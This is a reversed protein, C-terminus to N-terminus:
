HPENEDNTSNEEQFYRQKKLSFEYHELIFYTIQIFVMSLGFYNNIDTIVLLTVISLILCVGLSVAM